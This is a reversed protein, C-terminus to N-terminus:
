ICNHSNTYAIIFDVPVSPSTEVYNTACFESIIGDENGLKSDHRIYLESYDPKNQFTYKLNFSGFFFL